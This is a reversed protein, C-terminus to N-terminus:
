GARADPGHETHDGSRMQRRREQQRREHKEGAHRLDIGGGGALLLGAAISLRGVCFFAM